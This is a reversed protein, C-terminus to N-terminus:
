SATLLRRLDAETVATADVRDAELLAKLRGLALQLAARVQPERGEAPREFWLGNVVLTRAPRDHKLDIRGVIRDGWVIPMTFRGFVVDAPRKYIEWVYDVGFLAKARGHHHRGPDLPSLLVAEDDTTTGM